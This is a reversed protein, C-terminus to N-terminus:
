TADFNVVPCQGVALPGFELATLLDDRELDPYDELIAEISMGSALLRLLNEVPYRPARATVPEADTPFVGGHGQASDAVDRSVGCVIM